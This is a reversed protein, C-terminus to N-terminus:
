RFAEVAFKEHDYSDECIWLIEDDSVVLYETLSYWGYIERVEWDKGIGETEVYSMLALELVRCDSAEQIDWFPNEIEISIDSSEDRYPIWGAQYPMWDALSLYRVGNYTEKDGENCVVYLVKYEDSDMAWLLSVRRGSAEQSMLVNYYEGGIPTVREVLWYDSLLDMGTEQGLDYLIDRMPWYVGNNYGRGNSQMFDIDKAKVGNEGYDLVSEYQRWGAGHTLAKTPEVSGSVAHEEDGSVAEATKGEVKGSESESVPETEQDTEMGSTQVKEARNEETRGGCGALLSVIMIAPVIGITKKKM